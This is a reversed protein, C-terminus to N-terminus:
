RLPLMRSGPRRSPGTRNTPSRNPAADRPVTDMNAHASDALVTWAANRTSARMPGAADTGVTDSPATFRLPMLLVANIPTASPVSHPSAARYGSTAGDAAEADPSTDKDRSLLCIAASLAVASMLNLRSDHAM